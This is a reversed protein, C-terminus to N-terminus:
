KDGVWERLRECHFGVADDGTLEPYRPRTVVGKSDVASRVVAALRYARPVSPYPRASDYGTRFAERLSESDTVYWDAVLHEVKAVALGPAAALPGGWDLVATLEHDHAPTSGNTAGTRRESVVANGPRLDWPYLTAPPRAPLTANEFADLLVSRHADFASPLAAVGDRAHERFWEPWGEAEVARFRGGSGDGEAEFRLPGYGEFTFAEHLEALYRGFTRALRRRTEADFGAFRRHLDVGPAREVVAYAREGVRGTAYQQPVPVSTREGVARALETETRFAAVDDTFQVVVANPTTARETAESTNWRCWDDHGGEGRGNEAAVANDVDCGNSLTVLTTRKHNGNRAARLETPTWDPFERALM